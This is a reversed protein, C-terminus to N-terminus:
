SLHSSKMVRYEGSTVKIPDLVSREVKKVSINCKLKQKVSRNDILPLKLGPSNGSSKIVSGHKIESSENAFTRYSWNPRPFLLGSNSLSWDLITCHVELFAPDTLFGKRIEKGVSPHEKKVQDERSHIRDYYSTRTSLLIVMLWCHAGTALFALPMRPHMLFLTALLDLSTM